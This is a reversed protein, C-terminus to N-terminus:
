LTSAKVSPIRPQLSTAPRSCFSSLSNCVRESRKAARALLMLYRAPDLHVIITALSGIRRSGTGPSISVTQPSITEAPLAIGYRSRFEFLVPDLRGTHGVRNSAVSDSKRTRELSAMTMTLRRCLAQLRRHSWLDHGLHHPPPKPTLPPPPHLPPVHCLSTSASVSLWLVALCSSRCLSSLVRCSVITEPAPGRHHTNILGIKGTAM